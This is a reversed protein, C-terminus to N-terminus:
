AKMPIVVGYHNILYDIDEIIPKPSVDFSWTGNKRYFTGYMETSIYYLYNNIDLRFLEIKAGTIKDKVLISIFNNTSQFLSKEKGPNFVAVALDIKEIKEPILDLNIKIDQWENITGLEKDIEEKVFIHERSYESNHDKHQSNFHVMNHIDPCVGHPLCLFAHTNINLPENYKESISVTWGQRLYFERIRTVKPESFIDKYKVAKSKTKYENFFDLLNKINIM